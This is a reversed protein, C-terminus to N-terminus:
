PLQVGFTENFRNTWNALGVTAALVVLQAPSLSKALAAVVETDVKGQQSWQEAFRIVRKELDSYASSQEYDELTQVQVDSVGIKRAASTHYHLCYKCHNVQSAKLYALERLKPDLEGQIAHNMALTAQLVEPVHALTRFINPVTKFASLIKDFVAQVQRSAQEDKLPQIRPM